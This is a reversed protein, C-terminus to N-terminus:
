IERNRLRMINCVVGKTRSRVRVKDKWRVRIQNWAWEQMERSVAKEYMSPEDKKREDEKM